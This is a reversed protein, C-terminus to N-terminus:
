LKEVQVDLTKDALILDRKELWHGQYFPLQEGTEDFVVVMNNNAVIVKAIVGKLERDIEKMVEGIPRRQIGVVHEGGKWVAFAWIGKKLGRIFEPHAVEDKQLLDKWFSNM